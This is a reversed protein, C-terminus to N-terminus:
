LPAKRPALSPLRTEMPLSKRIRSPYDPVMKFYGEWAARLKATGEMRNGLSDVFAADATMFGIIAEPNRANILEEFKLATQIPNEDAM